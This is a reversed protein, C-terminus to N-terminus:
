FNMSNPKKPAILGSGSLAAQEGQKAFALDLHFPRTLNRKCHMISFLPIIM